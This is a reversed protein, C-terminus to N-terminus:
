YQRKAEEVSRAREFFESWSTRGIGKIRLLDAFLRVAVGFPLVIIFYFLSLVLRAQFNGIFGAIRLWHNWIRRWFTM